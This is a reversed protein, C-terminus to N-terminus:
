MNSRNTGGGDGCCAFSCAGHRLNKWLAKLGRRRLFLTLTKSKNRAGGNGCRVFSCAGFCITGAGMLVRSWVYQGADSQSHKLIHKERDFIDRREFGVFVRRQVARRWNSCGLSRLVGGIFLSLVLVWKKYESENKNM